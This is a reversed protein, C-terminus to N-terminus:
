FPECVCVVAPQRCHVCCGEPVPPEPPKSSWPLRVITQRRQISYRAYGKGVIGVEALVNLLKEYDIWSLSVGDLYLHFHGVTSSPELRAAFDIDLVPRHAGYDSLSSIVNPMRLGPEQLDTATLAAPDDSNNDDMHVPDVWWFKRAPWTM